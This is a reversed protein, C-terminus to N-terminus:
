EVGPRAPISMLGGTLTGARDFAVTETQGAIKQTCPVLQVEQIGAPLLWSCGAITCNIM